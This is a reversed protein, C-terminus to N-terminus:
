ELSGDLKERLGIELFLGFALAIFTYFVLTHPLIYWDISKKWFKIKLVYLVPDVRSKDTYLHPLVEEKLRKNAAQEQKHLITVIKDIKEEVPSVQLLSDGQVPAIIISDRLLKRINEPLRHNVLTDVFYDALYDSKEFTSKAAQHTFWAGAAFTYVAGIAVIGFARRFLRFIKEGKDALQALPALKGMLLLSVIVLLVFVFVRNGVMYAFDLDALQVSSSLFAWVVLSSVLLRWRFFKIIKTVSLLTDAFKSSKFIYWVREAIIAGVSALFALLAGIFFFVIATSSYITFLLFLVSAVGITLGIRWKNLDWFFRLVSNVLPLCIFLVGGWFALWNLALQELLVEARITRCAIVVLIIISASLGVLYATRANQGKKLFFRDYQLAIGEWLAHRKIYWQIADGAERQLAEDSLLEHQRVTQYENEVDDFWVNGAAIVGSYRSDRIIALWNEIDKKWSELQVEDDKYLGMQKLGSEAATYKMKASLPKLFVSEEMFKSLAPYHPHRRFTSEGYHFESLFDMILHRFYLMEPAKEKPSFFNDIGEMEKVYFTDREGWKIYPVANSDDIPYLKGMTRSIDSDNYHISFLEESCYHLTSPNKEEENEGNDVPYLGNYCFSLSYENFFLCIPYRNKIKVRRYLFCNSHTEDTLEDVPSFYLGHNKAM